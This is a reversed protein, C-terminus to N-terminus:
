DTEFISFVKESIALLKKTEQKAKESPRDIVEFIVKSSGLSLEVSLTYGDLSTFFSM